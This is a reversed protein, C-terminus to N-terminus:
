KDYENKYRLTASLRWDEVKDQYVGDMYTANTRYISKINRHGSELSPYAELKYEQGGITVPQMELWRGLLDLFEKVRMKQVESRPACRYIVNFPYLCEQYVHGTIDERNAIFVAGSVPFFGIGQTDGLTSFTIESGDLGPFQNLLTLLVRSVAEGGEVDVAVKLNAM